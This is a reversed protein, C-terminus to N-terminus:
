KGVLYLTYGSKMLQLIDIQNERNQCKVTAKVPSFVNMQVDTFKCLFSILCGEYRRSILHIGATVAFAIVYM